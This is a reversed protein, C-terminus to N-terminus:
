PELVEVTQVHHVAVQLRLVKEQVGLTVDADGVKAEGLRGDLVVRDLREAPRRLVDWVWTTAKYSQTFPRTICHGYSRTPPVSCEGGNEAAVLM